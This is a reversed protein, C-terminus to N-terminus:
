AESISATGTSTATARPSASSTSKAGARGDVRELMWAMVRMNDGFGPWVFKGDADKRFWNVTFIKPLKAGSAAFASVWFQGTASTNPWALGSRCCPSRIAACSARSVRQLPPRRRGWRRPWAFRGRGLRASGTVLPVTTSCAGGFIFADIPM